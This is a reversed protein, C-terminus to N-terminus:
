PEGADGGPGDFALLAEILGLRSLTDLAVSRSVAARETRMRETSVRRLAAGLTAEIPALAAEVDLPAEMYAGIRGEPSALREYGHRVRRFGEPDAHPPHRQLAAFYARKIAAADLTPAIDLDRFARGGTEDSPEM